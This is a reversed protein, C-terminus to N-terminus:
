SNNPNETPMTDTKQKQSVGVAATCLGVLIACMAVGFSQMDFHHDSSKVVTYISLGLFTPFGSCGVLMVIVRIVDYSKGDNETLCDHLLKKIQNWM